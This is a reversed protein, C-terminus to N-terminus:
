GRRAGWGVINSGSRTESSRLLLFLHCLRNCILEGFGERYGTDVADVANNAVAEIAKGIRDAFMTLKFQHMGFMLLPVCDYRVGVCM